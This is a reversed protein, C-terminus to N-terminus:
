SGPALELVLPLLAEAIRAHGAVSLHHDARWYMPEPQDALTERLDLVPLGLRDCGAVFGDGLRAHVDLDSRELGIAEFLPELRVADHEWDVECLTPLYLCALDIGREACMARMEDVLGLAADLAPGITEPHTAFFQISRVAQAMASPHLEQGVNMARRLEADVGVSPLGHFLRYPRLMGFFDNGGYVCVVFVDVDLHGYKRLAGLYNYLSYGGEASNIVDTSSRPLEEALASELVGAFTESNNCTGATHSDGTVLVRLDFPGTRLAADEHLGIDNVRLWFSGDPHESWAIEKEVNPRRVYYVLEDYLFGEAFGGILTRADAEDLWYRFRGAAENEAARGAGGASRELLEEGAEFNDVFTVSDGDGDAAGRARLMLLVAPLALAIGLSVALLRRNTDTM